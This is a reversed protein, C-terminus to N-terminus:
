PVVRRGVAQGDQLSHVGRIVVEDGESLGSMVMVRDQLAPSTEVAVAEVRGAADAADGERIVRWVIDRGDDVHIAAAPLTLVPEGASGLRARVLAGLRFPTDPPLTLYLRRTRTATDAIPDIRDLVATVQKDPDTRQWVTFTADSPLGVIASEPLDVVAERRDEASLQLIPAGASVVAGPAEFVDSVVGSFPAIMTANNESDQAQVLESRAQEAAADAAAAAQQAQELQADSAVNRAALAETRQLTTRATSLQVEAADVAAQAARTTAAMDETALEALVQGTRVRDGLEANRVVMRGLTQFAMTVQTRSQVVGPVWRAAEGRDEVIETVVPRPALQEQARSGFSLWAPLDLAVAPMTWMLAGGLCLIRAMHHRAIM